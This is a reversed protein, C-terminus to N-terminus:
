QNFYGTIDIKKVKRCVSLNIVILIIVLSVPVLICSITIDSFSISTIGLGLLSFMASVVKEGMLETLIVGLIVGTGGTFVMPYLEQICIAKIPIGMAIKEALVHMTRVLRLEMFLLVIFITIVGGIIIVLYVAQSFLVTVGGLTQELFSDMSKLSYGSGLKSKLNNSFDDVSIDNSLELQYTYKEEKISDYITITILPM